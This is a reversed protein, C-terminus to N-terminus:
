DLKEETITILKRLQLDGMTWNKSSSFGRSSITEWDIIDEPYLIVDSNNDIFHFWSIFSNLIQLTSQSYDIKEPRVPDQVNGLFEESSEEKVGGKVLKDYESKSIVEISGDSNRVINIKDNGTSGSSGFTIPGGKLGYVTM